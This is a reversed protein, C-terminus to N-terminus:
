VHLIVHTQSLEIFDYAAFGATILDLNQLFLRELNRNGINGTSVLLLQPPRRGLLFSNVFDADKTVVIRGEAIAVSIITEDPTRNQEPLDLTHIADHGLQGLLRALRKPLHADVLFKV